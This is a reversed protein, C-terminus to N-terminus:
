REGFAVPERGDVVLDPETIISDGRMPVAVFPEFGLLHRSSPDNSAPAFDQLSFLHRIRDVPHNCSFPRKDFDFASLCRQTLPCVSFLEAPTDSEHESSPHGRKNDADIKRPIFRAKPRHRKGDDQDNIIEAPEHM